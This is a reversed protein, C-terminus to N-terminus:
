DCMGIHGPIASPSVRVPVYDPASVPLQNGYLRKLYAHKFTPHTHYWTRFLSALRHEKFGDEVEYVSLLASDLEPPYYKKMYDAIASGSLYRNLVDPDVVLCFVSVDASHSYLGLQASMLDDDTGRPLPPVFWQPGRENWDLVRVPTFQTEVM